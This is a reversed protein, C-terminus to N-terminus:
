LSKVFVELRDMAEVLDGYSAAYSLRYWGKGGPGFVSGPVVGVKAKAILDEVFRFDDDGYAPHVKGFLYFAGDPQIFDLGMASLRDILVQRRRKFEALNSAVVDDCDRYATLAAYQDPTSVCTVLAQHYTFFYSYYDAPLHLFGIRFGTMAYTKSVGAMLITQDPIEQYISYHDGDYVLDAYIEDSLVLVDYARIVEALAQIEAKSYTTGTPNNPYNLILLRIEPHDELAQRLTDPSLKFGNDSSDVAVVEGEALDTCLEYSPFFPSPILVKDGENLLCHTALAIGESAGNTILIQEASLDMGHSREYYAAIAERLEPIGTSPAYHTQGEQLAQTMAAQIRPDTALDPEGITFNLAGETEAVQQAIMRITSPQPKNLRQNYYM